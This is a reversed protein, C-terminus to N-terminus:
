RLCMEMTDAIQKNMAELMEDIKDEYGSEFRGRMKRMVTTKMRVGM